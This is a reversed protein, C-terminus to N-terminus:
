EEVTLVVADEDDRVLIVRDGIKLDSYTIVTDGKVILTGTLEVYESTRNPSWEGHFNVYDFTNQLKIRNWKVDFGEVTGRTYLLPNLAEEMKDAIRGENSIADDIPKEKILEKKRIVMGIIDQSQPSVVFFSYYREYPLGVGDTGKNDDKSYNGHFFNYRGLKVPVLTSTDTIKTDDSMFYQTDGLSSWVFKDSQYTEGFNISYSNVTDISGAFLTDFPSTSSPIMEVIAAETLGLASSGVVFIGDDEIIASETVLRGDKLYIVGAPLDVNVKSSLELKSIVPDYIKVTDSYVRENQGKIVIQSIEDKGYANRTVYYISQGKLSGLSSKTVIKGSKTILVDKALSVEVTPSTAKVWEQNKLAYPDTLALVNTSLKLEKVSAKYVGSLMQEPGEVEVKFLTNDKLSSLYFKVRDGEKLTYLTAKLGNKFIATGSDVGYSVGAESQLYLNTGQIYQIQGFVIRSGPPIYGPEKIFSESTLRTIVGDVALLRVESGAKLDSPLAPRFNISLAANPSLVYSHLNNQYDFVTLLTRQKDDLEIKQLTGSIESINAQDLSAYIVETGDKVYYTVVNGLAYQNGYTLTGAKTVIVDSRIGTKSDSLVLIDNLVGEVSRVRLRYGTKTTDASNQNEPLIQEINGIIKDIGEGTELTAKLRSLVSGAPLVEAIQATTPDSMLFKVEDGIQLASLGSVKGSRLVAVDTDTGDKLGTRVQIQILKGDELRLVASHESLSKGYLSSSTKKTGIVVGYQETFGLATYFRPAVADLIQVAERRSVAANPRIAGGSLSIAREKLLAEILGRHEPSITSDDKAADLLPTVTEVPLATARAVWSYFLEKTIPKFYGQGESPTTIGGTLALAAHADYLKALANQPSQGVIQAAIGAVVTAENGMLRNITIMGEIANISKAPSFKGAGTGKMIGLLSMRLAANKETQGLDTYQAATIRGFAQSSGKYPTPVQDVSLGRLEGIGMIDYPQAYIPQILLAAVLLLHLMCITHKKRILNM